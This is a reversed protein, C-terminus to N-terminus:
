RRASAKARLNSISGTPLIRDPSRAGRRVAIETFPKPPLQYGRFGAFPQVLAGDHHGSM